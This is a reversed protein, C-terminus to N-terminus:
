RHSKAAVSAFFGSPNAKAVALAPQPDQKLAVVFTATATRIGADARLADRRATSDDRPWTKLSTLFPQMSRGAGFAAAIDIMRLQVRGWRLYASARGAVAKIFNRYGAAFAPSALSGLPLAAAKEATEGAAKARELIRLAHRTAAGAKAAWIRALKRDDANSLQGKALIAAVAPPMSGYPPGKIANFAALADAARALYTDARIFSPTIAPVPTAFADPVLPAWASACAVAVAFRIARSGTM